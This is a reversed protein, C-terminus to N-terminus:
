AMRASQGGPDPVPDKEVPQLVPVFGQRGPRWLDLLCGGPSERVRVAQMRAEAPEM